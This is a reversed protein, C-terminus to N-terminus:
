TDKKNEFYMQIELRTTEIETVSYPAIYSFTALPFIGRRYKHNANHTVPWLYCFPTYESFWDHWNDKSGHHPIQFLFTQPLFYKYRNIFANQNDIEADGTLFQYNICNRSLLDNEFFNTFFGSKNIKYENIRVQDTPGHACILNSSNNNLKLEKMKVKIYDWKDMANNISIDNDRFFRQLEDFKENEKPMFFNFIWIPSRYIPNGRIEFKDVKSSKLWNFEFDRESDTSPESSEDIYSAM